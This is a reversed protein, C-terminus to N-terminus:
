LNNVKKFLEIEQQLNVDNFLMFVEEDVEQEGNAIDVAFEDGTQPSKQYKKLYAIIAKKEYTHGDFAVVPENMISHTISCKFNTPIKIATTKEFMATGHGEKADDDMASKMPYKACMKRIHHYIEHVNQLLYHNKENVSFLDLLDNKSFRNVNVKLENDNMKNEMARQIEYLNLTLVSAGAVSDCDSDMEFWKMKYRIWHFLDAVTWESWRHELADWEASLRMNLVRIYESTNRQFIQYGKMVTSCPIRSREFGQIELEKTMLEKKLTLQKKNLTNEDLIQQNYDEIMQDLSIKTSIRSNQIGTFASVTKEFLSKAQKM